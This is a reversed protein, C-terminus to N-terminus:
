RSLMKHSSKTFQGAFARHFAADDPATTFRLLAATDARVDRRDGLAAEERVKLADFGDDIALHTVDAHGGVGEFLAEDGLGRLAGPLLRFFGYCGRLLSEVM